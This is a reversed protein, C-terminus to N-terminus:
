NIMNEKTSDNFEDGSLSSIVTLDYDTDSVDYKRHKMFLEYKSWRNSLVVIFPNSKKM